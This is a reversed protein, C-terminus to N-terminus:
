MVRRAAMRLDQHALLELLGVDSGLRAECHIKFVEVIMSTQWLSNWERHVKM